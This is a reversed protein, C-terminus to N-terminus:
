PCMGRYHDIKRLFAHIIADVEASCIKALAHSYKPASSPGMYSGAIEILAVKTCTTKPAAVKWGHVELTVQEGFIGAVARAPPKERITADTERADRRHIQHRAM